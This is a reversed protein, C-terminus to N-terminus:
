WVSIRYYLSSMSLSSGIFNVWGNFFSAQCSGWPWPRNRGYFLLVRIQRSVEIELSASAVKYFFLYAVFIVKDCSVSYWTEKSVTTITKCSFLVSGYCSIFTSDLFYKRFFTHCITLHAWCQIILWWLFTRIPCSVVDSTTGATCPSPDTRALRIGQSTGVGHLGNFNLM